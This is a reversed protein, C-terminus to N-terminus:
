PTPEHRISGYLARIRARCEAADPVTKPAVALRQRLSPDQILTLLKEGLDAQNGPEFLLGTLGDEIAEEMAGLRSALVPVSALFGERITICWTEYWISPVVLIDLDRLIGPAQEPLYRGHLRIGPAQGEVPRAAQALRNRLERTEPGEPLAGHIDLTALGPPLGEFAELLVQIGKTPILTGIYGIRVPGAKGPRDERPGFAQKDLGYPIVHVRDEALGHERAYGLIQKRAFESPTIVADLGALAERMRLDQRLLQDHGPAKIWRYALSRGWRLSGALFGSGEDRAGPQSLCEQCRSRDIEPCTELDRRIRQGLPCSYYFDHLSGVAQIRRSRTVELMGFSLHILSHFHVIDPMSGELVQEFMEDIRRNWYLHEFRLGDRKVRTELLTFGDRDSRRTGFWPITEDDSPVLVEIEDQASLGRALQDVHAEIGGLKEPPLGHTVFLIKM